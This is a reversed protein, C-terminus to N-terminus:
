QLYWNDGDRRNLFRASYVQAQFLENMHLPFTEVLDTRPEGLCFFATGSGSMLVAQFGAEQCALKIDALKPCLAFSPTELDNVYEAGYVGNALMSELLAKPDRDSTM